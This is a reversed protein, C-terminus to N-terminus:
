GAVLETTNVSSEVSISYTRTLANITEINGTVNIGNSALVEVLYSQFSTNQFKTDESLFYDFDIGFLPQYTLKGLQVSLINAAKATDTDIVRSDFGTELPPFIDIM